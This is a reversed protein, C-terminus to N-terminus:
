VPCVQDKQLLKLIRCVFIGHSCNESIEKFGVTKVEEPKFGAGHQAKMIPVIEQKMYDTVEKTIEQSFTKLKEKHRELEKM